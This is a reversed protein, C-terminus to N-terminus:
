GRVSDCLFNAVINQHSAFIVDSGIQNVLALGNKICRDNKLGAIASPWFWSVLDFYGSKGNSNEFSVQCPLYEASRSGLFSSLFSHLIKIMTGSKNYEWTTREFAEFQVKMAVSGLFKFIALTLLMLSNLFHRCWRRWLDIIQNTSHFFIITSCTRCALGKAAIKQRPRDHTLTFNEYKFNQRCRSVAGPFRENEAKVHFCNTGLLRIWAEGGEYLTLLISYDSFM